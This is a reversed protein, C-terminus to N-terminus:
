AIKGWFAAAHWPNVVKATAISRSFPTMVNPFYLLLVKAEGRKVDLSIKINTITENQLVVGQKAAQSSSHREVQADWDYHYSFDQLEEKQQYPVQVSQCSSGVGRRFCRTLQDHWQFQRCHGSDMAYKIIVMMLKIRDSRRTFRKSLMNVCINLHFDYWVEWMWGTARSFRPCSSRWSRCFNVNARLNQMFIYSSFITLQGELKASMGSGRYEVPEWTVRKMNCVRSLGTLDAVHLLYFDSWVAHGDRVDAVGSERLWCQGLVDRLSRCDHFM